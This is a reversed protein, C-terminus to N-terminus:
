HLTNYIYFYSSQLLDLLESIDNWSRACEAANILPHSGEIRLRNTEHLTIFGVMNCSERRALGDFVSKTRQIGPTFHIPSTIEDNKGRRM